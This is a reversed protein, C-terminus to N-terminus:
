SEAPRGACEYSYGTVQGYNNLGYAVSVVGGLTGLDTLVYSVSGRAPFVGLLVWFLPVTKM